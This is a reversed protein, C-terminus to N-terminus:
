LGIRSIVPSEFRVVNVELGDIMKLLDDYKESTAIIVQKDLEFTLAAKEIFTKFNVEKTEQQRPEDLM